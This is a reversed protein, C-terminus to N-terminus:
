HNKDYEMLYMYIIKMSIHLSILNWKKVTDKQILIAAYSSFCNKDGKKLLLKFISLKLKDPFIGEEICKNFVNSLVTSVFVAVFKIVRTSVNDYGTTYTNKLDRIVELVDHPIVPNMFM